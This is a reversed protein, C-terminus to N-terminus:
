FCFFHTAAPSSFDADVFWSQGPGGWKSRTGPLVNFLRLLNMVCRLLHPLTSFAISWTLSIVTQGVDAEILQNEHPVLLGNAVGRWDAAVQGFDFQSTCEICQMSSLLVVEKQKWDRTKTILNDPVLVCRWAYEKQFHHWMYSRKLLTSAPCGPQHIMQVSFLHFKLM